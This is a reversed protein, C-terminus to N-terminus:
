DSSTVEIVISDGALTVPAGIAIDQSTALARRAYFTGGKFLSYWSVSNVGAGATGFDIDDTVEARGQTGHITWGASGASINRSPLTTSAVRNTIGTVGPNGTHLYVTFAADVAKLIMERLGSNEIAM